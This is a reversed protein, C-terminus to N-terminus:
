LLKRSGAYAEEIKLATAAQRPHKEPNWKKMDEFLKGSTHYEVIGKLQFSKDENTIFLSLGQERFSHKKRTKDFYNDVIVITEEDFKSVCTEYITNPNGNTEVTSFVVPGKRNDWAMSVEETLKAIGKEM